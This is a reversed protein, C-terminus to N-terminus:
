YGPPVPPPSPQIHPEISSPNLNNRWQSGIDDDEESHLLKSLQDGPGKHTFGRSTYIFYAHEEIGSGTKWWSM